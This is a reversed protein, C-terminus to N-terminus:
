GLLYRTGLYMNIKIKVNVYFYCQAAIFDRMDIIKNVIKYGSM